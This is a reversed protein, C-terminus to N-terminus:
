GENGSKEAFEVCWVEQAQGWAHPGWAREGRDWAILGRLAPTEWM